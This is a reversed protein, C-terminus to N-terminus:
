TVKLNEEVNVCNNSHLTELASDNIVSVVRRVHVLVEASVSLQFTGFKEHLSVAVVVEVVDSVCEDDQKLHHHDILPM